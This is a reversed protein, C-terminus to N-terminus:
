VHHYSNGFCSVYRIALYSWAVAILLCLCLMAQWGRHWLHWSMPRCRIKARRILKASAKTSGFKKQLEESTPVCNPPLM